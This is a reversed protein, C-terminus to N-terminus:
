GSLPPSQCRPLPHPPPPAYRRHRPVVAVLLSAAATTAAAATPVAAYEHSPAWMTVLKVTPLCHLLDLPRELPPAGSASTSFRGAQGPFSPHTPLGAAPPPSTSYVECVHPHHPPLPHSCVQYPLASIPAKPPIVIALTILDSKTTCDTRGSLHKNHLNSQRALYATRGGGIEEFQRCGM